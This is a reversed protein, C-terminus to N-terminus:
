EPPFGLVFGGVSQKIFGGNALAVIAGSIVNRSMLPKAMERVEKDTWVVRGDKHARELATLLKTQTGAPPRRPAGGSVSVPTVVCTSVVDGDPDLGLSCVELDFPLIDANSQGERLKGSKLMRSPWGPAPELKEVMFEADLAGLLASHGRMGRSEDKGAHHVILVAAGTSDKIRKINSVYLGMDEPGNEDGGGFTVSLTDVVILAVQEGMRAELEKCAALVDMIDGDGHLLDVQVPVFYVLSDTLEPYRERLVIIRNELRKRTSEACIYFVVGQKVRRGAWMKGAGIHGAMHLAVFTKGSGPAGWLVILQGRDFLDKVLYPLDVHAQAQQVTFGLELLRPPQPKEPVLWQAVDCGEPLTDALDWGDPLTTVFRQPDVIRVEKALPKLHTSVWAMAKRGPTDCDPILIVSRGTLPTWDAQGMAAAGGAWTTVLHSPFLKQAAVATKEGEVMVVPAEPDSALRDLHFLPRPTPHHGWKWGGEPNRILPRIDKKGGPQEWRCVRLIVRGTTDRYDWYSHYAGLQFHESPIDESRRTQGLTAGKAELAQAIDRYSCGAYCVLALGDDGDALFLSPNRDEHAPCCAKWGNPTRKPKHLLAACREASWSTEHMSAVM